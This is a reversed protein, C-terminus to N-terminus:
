AEAEDGWVTEFMYEGGEQTCDECFLVKEGHGGFMEAILGDVEPHNEQGTFGSATDKIYRDGVELERQCGFCKMNPAGM